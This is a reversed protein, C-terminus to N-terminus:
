GHPRETGMRQPPAKEIARDALDDGHCARAPDGEGLILHRPDHTDDVSQRGARLGAEQEVELGTSRRFQANQAARNGAESVLGANFRRHM